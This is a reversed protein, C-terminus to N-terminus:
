LGVLLSAQSRVFVVFAILQMNCADHRRNDVALILLPGRVVEGIVDLLNLKSCDLGNYVLAGGNQEDYMVIYYICFIMRM